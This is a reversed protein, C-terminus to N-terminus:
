PWGGIKISACFAMAVPTALISSQRLRRRRQIPWSAISNTLASHRAIYSSPATYRQTPLRSPASRARRWFHVMRLLTTKGSNPEASTVVLLPSFTAADHVWAFMIWLAVVLATEHSCVVHQQIRRIIDRTLADGDVVEPYPEIHWHKYLPELRRAGVEEDIDGPGVGLEKALKKRKRKYDLGSTRALAEILQDERVKAAAARDEATPPKWDQADTVLADLQERTGGAKAWDLIDGKQELNPLSVVRISKAITSLSAGVKHIHEWGASDNDPVLFVDAGRLYESHEKRWKKAGGVCCTAAINWSWLLDVKAEGEVILIPHGTAIAELLQPLRYPVVAVGDANPIWKGRNNPDPRKQRFTKKRKGDELVFGSGDFKQFEIREVKLVATGDRDDYQFEDVVIEPGGPRGKGNAKPRPRPRPGALTTCAAKFDVGDLHEVLQIVDGGIGCGRCNFINKQIHVAFRDDGGCKPCPGVYEGGVRKLNNIGRRLIEEGIPVARARNTWDLFAGSGHM